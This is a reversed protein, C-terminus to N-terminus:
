ASLTRTAVTRVHHGHLSEHSKCDDTSEPESDHARERAQGSLRDSQRLDASARDYGIVDIFPMNQRVEAFSGAMCACTVLRRCDVRTAFVVEIKCIKNCSVRHEVQCKYYPHCLVPRNRPSNRRPAEARAAFEVVLWHTFRRSENFALVTRKSNRETRWRVSAAIVPAWAPLPASQPIRQSRIPAGFRSM